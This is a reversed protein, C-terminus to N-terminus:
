GRHPAAIWQTMTARDEPCSRAFIIQQKACRCTSLIADPTKQSFPTISTSCRM